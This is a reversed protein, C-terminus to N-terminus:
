ATLKAGPAGDLIARIQKAYEASEKDGTVLEIQKPSSVGIGLQVARAIQEQEFITGKSVEETTGFYRLLAVGVADIAIRDNGALVVHSDVLKGTDPGGTVFSQIGDLVILDPKYAANIEAIMRRQDASSHLERMYNYSDGPVFKAALGVSNKLSLTFHGGYRHTKLCCTQVIGGANRVLRPVAFGKQWHSQPESIHEWDDDKLDDFVVVKPGLEKGLTFAQKKEMVERTNGMGSRDGITLPGAGMTKLKKVLAALTDQSTSGPAADASNFNPKIFLDKGGFRKMELLDIAKAVGAARDTTKVFAVHATTEAAFAVNSFGRLMEPALLAAGGLASASKLFDRRNLAM